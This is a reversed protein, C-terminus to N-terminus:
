IGLWRGVWTRVLALCEPSVQGARRHVRARSVTRPQETMAFTPSELHIDGVLEVHNIWDRDRTTCPVVTALDTAAALHRASSLVIAPRRGSQERGEADGFDIWVVEGPRLDTM